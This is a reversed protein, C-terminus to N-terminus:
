DIRSRARALVVLAAIAAVGSEAGPEPVFSVDDWRTEFIDLSGPITNAIVGVYLRGSHVGAPATFLEPGIATWVDRPPSGITM